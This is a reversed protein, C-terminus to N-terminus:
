TLGRVGATGHLRRMFRGYILDYASDILFCLAVYALLLVGYATITNFTLGAAMRARGTMEPVTMLYALASMRVLNVTASALNPLAFMFAQPLRVQIFVRVEAFGAARAAEIERAPVASFAGRYVEILAALTNFFLVAIAYWVPSIAFVDVTWGRAAALGALLSPLWSYAFLIQLVVPLSRFLTVYAGTLYYALRGRSRLYGLLVGPVLALVLPVATLVLTLPLGPIIERITTVFANAAM